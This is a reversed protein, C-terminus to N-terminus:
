LDCIEAKDMAEIFIEQCTLGYQRGITQCRNGFYNVLDVSTFESNLLGLRLETCDM